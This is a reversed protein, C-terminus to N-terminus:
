SEDHNQRFLTFVNSDKLKVVNQVEYNFKEYFIVNNENATELFIGKSYNDSLSMKHLEGLLMTGCGTRRFQQQVALFTLYYHPEEPHYQGLIQKNKFMEVLTRLKMSFIFRIIWISSKLIPINFETKQALLVGILDAEEFVGLVIQDTCLYTSIIGKFFLVLSSFIQGGEYVFTKSTGSNKQFSEALISAADEIYEESIKRISTIM